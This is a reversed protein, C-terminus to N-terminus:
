GAEEGFDSRNRWGVTSDEGSQKRLMPASREDDTAVTPRSVAEMLNVNRVSGFFSLPIGSIPNIKPSSQIDTLIPWHLPHPLFIFHTSYPTSTTIFPFSSFLTPLHYKNGVSISPFCWICNLHVSPPFHPDGLKCVTDSRFLM